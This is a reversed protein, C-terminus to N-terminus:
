TVKRNHLQAMRLSFASSAPIGCFFQGRIDGETFPNIHKIPKIYWPKSLNKNCRGPKKLTRGMMEGQRSEGIRLRIGLETAYGM